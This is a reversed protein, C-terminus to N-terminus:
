ATKPRLVAIHHEDRAIIGAKMDSPFLVMYAEETIDIVEAEWWGIANDADHLEAALGMHGPRILWYWADLFEESTGDSDALDIPAPAEHNIAEKLATEPQQVAAQVM